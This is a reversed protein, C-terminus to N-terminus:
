LRGLFELLAATVAAPNEMPSMHGADAIEVLQAQPIAAALARMEAPPTIADHAGVVVLTPCGIEPLLGSMDPREAMGLAAAAVGRRNSALIMQRLSAVVEPRREFSTDALLRPLMAEVLPAPGDTRVRDAMQRRGAAVPLTDSAARTDCLVLGRLRAAYKRAFQFAVYGGMSLGALVIREGPALADLLSALDDAFQEMSVPGEGGASQGFGRLDPAMVRYGGALADIQADWMRHDLPFGHVLLVPMGAGRDELALELGGVIHTKV